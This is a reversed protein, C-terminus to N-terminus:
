QVRLQNDIRASPAVRRAVQEAATKQEATRVTGKLVVGGSRDDADLDLGSLASEARLADEVRDEVDDPEGERMRATASVQIRSDVTGQPAVRRAVQEALAKQEATRVTGELMVRGDEDEADLDFPRLSTDADLADEVRDDLDDGSATTSAGVGGAASDTTRNSESSSCASGALALVLAMFGLPTRM